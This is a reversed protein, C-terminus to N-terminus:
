KIKELRKAAAKSVSESSDNNKIDDLFSKDSIKKIASERVYDEKANKAINKHIDENKIRLVAYGGNSKNETNLAYKELYSETTICKLADFCLDWKLDKDLALDLLISEDQILSIAVSKDYDRNQDNPRNSIVELLFKQDIDAMKEIADVRNKINGDNIATARLERIKSESNGKSSFIKDLFGM